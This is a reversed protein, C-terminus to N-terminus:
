SKGAVPLTPEAKAEAPLSKLWQIGQPIGKRIMSQYHGGTPVSHFTVASNTQKLLEVFRRTIEISINRDDEAHFVFVPCKLREIGEQPSLRAIGPFATEVSARKSPARGFLDPLPAYAICGKIRPEHEALLLAWIAASKQPFTTSCPGADRRADHRRAAPPFQGSACPPRLMKGALPLRRLLGDESVLLANM